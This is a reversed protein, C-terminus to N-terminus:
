TSIKDKTTNDSDLDYICQSVNFNDLKDFLNTRVSINIFAYISYNLTDLNKCKFSM